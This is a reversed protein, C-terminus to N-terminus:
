ICNQVLWCHFYLNLSDDPPLVGSQRLSWYKNEEFINKIQFLQRNGAKREVKVATKDLSNDASHFNGTVEWVWMRIREWKGVEGERRKLTRIATTETGAPNSYPPANRRHNM